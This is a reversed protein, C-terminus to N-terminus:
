GFSLWDRQFEGTRVYRVTEHDPLQLDISIDLRAPYRIYANRRGRRSGESGDTVMIASETM